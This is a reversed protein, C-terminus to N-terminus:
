RCSRTTAVLAGVHLARAILEKGTGSEGIILVTADTAAVQRVIADIKKMLLHDGILSPAIPSAATNKGPTM